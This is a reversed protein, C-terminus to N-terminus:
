VMFRLSFVKDLRLSLLVLKELLLSVALNLQICSVNGRSDFNM